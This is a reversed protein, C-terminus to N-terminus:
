NKVMKLVKTEQNEFNLHIHYIGNPLNSISLKTKTLTRGEQVIRGNLDYIIYNFNQLEKNNDDIYVFEESPIPYIRLENENADEIQETIGELPSSKRFSNSPHQEGCMYLEGYVDMEPLVVLDWYGSFTSIPDLGRDNSNYIENTYCTDLVYPTEFTGCSSSHSNINDAFMYVYNGKMPNLVSKYNGIASYAEINSLGQFPKLITSFSNYFSENPAAPPITYHTEYNLYWNSHSNWMSVRNDLSDIRYHCLARQDPTYRKSGDALISSVLLKQRGTNDEYINIQPDKMYTIDNYSQPIFLDKSYSTFNLDSRFVAISRRNQRDFIETTYYIYNDQPHDVVYVASEELTNIAVGNVNSHFSPTAFMLDNTPSPAGCGPVDLKIHRITRYEPLPPFNCGAPSQHYLQDGASIGVIHLDGNKDLLLDTPNMLLEMLFTSTPFSGSNMHVFFPVHSIGNYNRKLGLAGIHRVGCNYYVALDVGEVDQEQIVRLRSFVHNKYDYRGIIMHKVQSFPETVTGVFGLQFHNIREVAKIHFLKECNASPSCSLGQLSDLTIYKDYIIDGTNPERYTIWTGDFNNDNSYHNYFSIIAEGGQYDNVYYSAEAEIKLNGEGAFFGPNHPLASLDYSNNYDVTQSYGMFPIFLLLFYWKKLTKM